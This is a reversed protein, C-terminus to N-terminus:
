ICFHYSFLSSKRNNRGLQEKEEEQHLDWNSSWLLLCSCCSIIVLLRQTGGRSVLDHCCENPFHKKRFLFVNEGVFTQLYKEWYYQCAINIRISLDNLPSWIHYHQAKLQWCSKRANGHFKWVYLCLSTQKEQGPVSRIEM